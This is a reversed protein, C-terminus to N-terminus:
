NNLNMKNLFEDLTNENILYEESGPLANVDETVSAVLAANVDQGNQVLYAEIDEGSISALEKEFSNTTIIKSAEAMVTADPKATIGTDSKNNFVSFVSIGILGTVVAAAMYRIISKRKPMAVVKAPVPIRQMILFDLSDFYADPVSYVNVNGIGSVLSSLRSTEEIVSEPKSNVENMVSAALNEFYGQPVTFINEKGASALAPSLRSIEEKSSEEKEQRIRNMISDALGDFYGEPVTLNQSNKIEVSLRKEPQLLTLINDSLDNFYGEPVTYVNRRPIAAVAPSLSELEQSIDSFPKM